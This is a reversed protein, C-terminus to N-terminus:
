TFLPPRLLKSTPERIVSVLFLLIAAFHLGCSPGHGDLLEGAVVMTNTAGTLGIRGDTTTWAGDLIEDHEDRVRSMEFETPDPPLSHLRYSITTNLLTDYSLPASVLKRFLLEVYERIGAVGMEGENSLLPLVYENWIVRHLKRPAHPWFETCTATAFPVKLKDTVTSPLLWIEM